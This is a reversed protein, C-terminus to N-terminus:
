EIFRLRTDETHWCVRSSPPPLFICRDPDRRLMCEIQQYSNPWSVIVTHQTTHTRSDFLTLPLMCLPEGVGTPVSHPLCQGTLNEPPSSVQPTKSFSTLNALCLLSVSLTGPLSFPQHLPRSPPYAFTLLTSSTSCHCFERSQLRRYWM